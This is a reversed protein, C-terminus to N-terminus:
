APKDTKPKIVSNKAAKVLENTDKYLLEWGSIDKMAILLNLYTKLNRELDKRIATASTMNRLDANAEAQTAFLTEFATHKAKLEAVAADLSLNTIKQKNAPLDLEEILKKLQATQSSYSLRDIGLGYTKFILYLDAAAQHNPASSLQRYGSLFNKLSAYALDRDRDATAVDEGKGSYSQKTYVKDYEAYSNQLATTLPHNAIVPYKGSQINAIIRQALTALDKTNLRVLSIKM